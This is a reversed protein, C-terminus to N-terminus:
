GGSAIQLNQKIHELNLGGIVLTGVHPNKLIFPIAERGSNARPWRSKVFGRRWKELERL